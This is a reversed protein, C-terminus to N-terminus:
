HKCILVLEFSCALSTVSSSVFVYARAKAFVRLSGTAATLICICYYVASFLPRQKSFLLLCITLDFLPCNCVVILRCGLIYVCLSFIPSARKMFCRCHLCKEISRRWIRSDRRASNWQSEEVLDITSSPIEEDLRLPSPQQLLKCQVILIFALKKEEEWIFAFTTSELAFAFLFIGSVRRLLDEQQIFLHFIGGVPVFQAAEFWVRSTGRHAAIHAHRHGYVLM